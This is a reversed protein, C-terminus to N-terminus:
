VGTRARRRAKLHRDLLRKRKLPSLRTVFLMGNLHDIQHQVSAAWLGQFTHTATAGNEDLYRVEARAPRTVDAWLGPLNPSGEPGTRKEESLSLIEPNALRVPEDQSDSCDLVALRLGIGLQPAALGVGPMTYMAGLMEDWITRIRDDVAAVEEARASLCPHPYLVFPRPAM